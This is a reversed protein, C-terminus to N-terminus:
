YAAGLIVQSRQNDQSKAGTSADQAAHQAQRSPVASQSYPGSSTVCGSLVGVIVIALILKTM